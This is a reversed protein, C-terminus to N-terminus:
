SKTVWSKINRDTFMWIGETYSSSCVYQHEKIICVKKEKMTEKRIELRQRKLVEGATCWHLRINGGQDGSVKRWVATFSFTM